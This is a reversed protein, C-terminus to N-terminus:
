STLLQGFIGIAVQLARYQGLIGGTIEPHTAAWAAAAAGTAFFNIYGCCVSASPGACEDSTRAVYVVATAPEWTSAEFPAAHQALASRGPANRGPRISAAGGPTSGTSRTRRPSAAGAMAGSRM